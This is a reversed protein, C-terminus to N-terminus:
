SADSKGNGLDTGTGTASWGDNVVMDEDSDASAADPTAVILWSADVPPSDDLETFSAGDAPPRADPLAHFTCFVAVTYTVGIDILEFWPSQPDTDTPRM